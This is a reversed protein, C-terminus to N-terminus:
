QLQEQSIYFLLMTFTVIFFMMNDAVTTMKQTENNTIDNDTASSYHELPWRAFKRLCTFTSHLYGAVAGWAMGGSTRRTTRGTWGGSVGQYELNSKALTDERRSLLM